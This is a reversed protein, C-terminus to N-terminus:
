FQLQFNMGFRVDQVPSVELEALNGFTLAFSANIENLSCMGGWEWEAIMIGEWQPIIRSKSLIWWNMRMPVNAEDSSDKRGILWVVSWFFNNYQFRLVQMKELGM